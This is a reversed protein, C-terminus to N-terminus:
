HTCYGIFIIVDCNTFSKYSKQQSKQSPHINLLFTHLVNQVNCINKNYLNIKIGQSKSANKQM